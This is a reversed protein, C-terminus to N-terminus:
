WGGTHVSPSGSAANSFTPRTVGNAALRSYTGTGADYVPTPTSSHPAGLARFSNTVASVAAFSPLYGTTRNGAYMFVLGGSAVDAIYSAALAARLTTTLTADSQVGPGVGDFAYYPVAMVGPTLSPPGYDSLADAFTRSTRPNGPEVLLAPTEWGRIDLEPGVALLDVQANVNALMVFGRDRLRSFEAAVAARWAAPSSVGLFDAHVSDVFLISIAPSIRGTALGWDLILSCAEPALTNRWEGANDNISSPWLPLARGMASEIQMRDGRNVELCPLLTGGVGGEAVIQEVRPRMSSVTGGWPDFWQVACEVGTPAEAASQTYIPCWGSYTSLRALTEASTPRDVCHQAGADCGFTCTTPTTWEHCGDFNTDQCHSVAGNTCM